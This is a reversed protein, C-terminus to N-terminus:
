LNTKNEKTCSSSESDIQCGFQGLLYLSAIGLMESCLPPFPVPQPNTIDKIDNPCLNWSTQLARNQKLLLLAPHMGRSAELKFGLPSSAPAEGALDPYYNPEASLVFVWTNFTHRVSLVPTLLVPEPTLYCLIGNGFRGSALQRMEFVWNGCRSFSFIIAIDESLQQSSLLLYHISLM